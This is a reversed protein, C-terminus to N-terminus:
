ETSAQRYRAKAPLVSRVGGRPDPVDGAYRPIVHMHFHLVTQGAAVGDNCGINFGDPAHRAKILARTEDVGALIATKEEAVLADWDPAHRRPVVLAHGQSVPFADWISLALPAQWAIRASELTCFPCSEHKLYGM